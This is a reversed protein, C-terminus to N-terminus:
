LRRINLNRFWTDADHNQLSIPTDRKPQDGLLSFVGPSKGWRRQLKPKIEEPAISTDVVKVGNLWHEVHNGQVVLRSHNWEGAPKTADASPAVMDYLAATAHNKGAFADVNAKDDIMQYEFGIVYEQGKAPRKEVPHNLFWEVQDEFRPLKPHDSTLWVTKQIRYKVGSNGGPAIRWDWEFDFDTYTEKSFLDETIRHKGNAKICGDEVTWADGPPDLARPDRWHDLTKGDFLSEAAAFQCVLLAALGACRLPVMFAPYQM